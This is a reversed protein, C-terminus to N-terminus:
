GPAAAIPDGAVRPMLGAVAPAGGAVLPAAGPRAGPQTRAVPGGPARQAASNNSLGWGELDPRIAKMVDERLAADLRALHESLMRQRRVRHAAEFQQISGWLPNYPSVSKAVPCESCIHRHADMGCDQLCWGCFGASCGPRVCRLAFCDQFDSFAQGCRPCKLTMFEAILLRQKSTESRRSEAAARAQLAAEMETAIREEAIRNRYAWYSSFAEPSAVKALAQSSFASNCREGTERYGPCALSADEVRSAAGVACATMIYSNLCLGCVFHDEVAQLCEIGDAFSFADMCICCKREAPKKWSDGCAEPAIARAAAFIRELMEVQRSSDEGGRFITIRRGDCLLHVAQGEVQIDSSESSMLAPLNLPLTSTFSSQASGMSAAAPPVAYPANPSPALMPSTTRSFGAPGTQPGLLPSPPMSSSASPRRVVVRPGSQYAGAAHWTTPQPSPERSAANSRSGQQLLGSPVVLQGSGAAGGVGGGFAFLRGLWGASPGSAASPSAGGDAVPAQASGGLSLPAQASGGQLMPAQASGGQLTLFEASGGEGVEVMMMQTSGGQLCPLHGGDSPASASM